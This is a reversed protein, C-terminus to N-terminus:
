IRSLYNQLVHLTESCAGTPNMVYSAGLEASVFGQYDIERLSELLSILDANGKGPILHADSDGFNDDLHIHLPLGKCKPIVKRFDEGNLHCHGSDLLIGFQNSSLKEIVQLCDEITVIINSEFRHAPEVLLLLGKDKNIEDLEQFSKLLQKRGNTVNKDFLVMGPCLSISPSGVKIANVMATEIYAVSERRVQENESCLISPYRFQAPIYNCVELRYTTLLNNIEDVQDDLDHRYLHPRGGWFEIGDYGLDALDKIAFQLSYNFYVASSVAIRIQSDSM